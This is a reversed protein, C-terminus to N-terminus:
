TSGRREQAKPSSDLTGGENKSLAKANTDAVSRKKAAVVVVLELVQVEAATVPTPTTAPLSNSNNSSSRYRSLNIIIM